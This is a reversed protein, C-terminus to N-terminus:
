VTRQYYDTRSSLIDKMMQTLGDKNLNNADLLSVFPHTFYALAVMCVNSGEASNGKHPETFNVQRLLLLYGQSLDSGQKHFGFRHLSCLM